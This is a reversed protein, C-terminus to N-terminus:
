NSISFTISKNESIELWNKLLEVCADFEDDSVDSVDISNDTIYDTLSDRVDDGNKLIKIQENREQAQEFYYSYQLNNIRSFLNNM